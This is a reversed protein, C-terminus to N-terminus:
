LKKDSVTCSRTGTELFSTQFVWGELGEQMETAMAPTCKPTWSQISSIIDHVKTLIPETVGDKFTEKCLHTLLFICYKGYRSTHSVKIAVLIYFFCGISQSKKGKYTYAFSFDKGSRRVVVKSSVWPCKKKFQLHACLSKKKNDQQQPAWFTHLM